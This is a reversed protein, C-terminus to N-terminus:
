SFLKALPYSFGPLMGLSDLTENAALTDVPIDYGSQWVDVQQPKSWPVWVLRVGAALYHRAKQVM